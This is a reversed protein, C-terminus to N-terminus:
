RYGQKRLTADLDAKTRQITDRINQSPPQPPYIYGFPLKEEVYGADVSAGARPADHALTRLARKPPINTIPEGTPDAVVKENKAKLSLPSNSADGAEFEGKDKEKPARLTAQNGPKHSNFPVNPTGNIHTLRVRETRPAYGKDDDPTGKQASIPVGSTGKKQARFPVRPTGKTHPQDHSDSSQKGPVILGPIRALRDTHVQYVVGHGRGYRGDSYEVRSIWGERELQARLTVASARRIKAIEAIEDVGCVANSGDHKRSSYLGIIALVRNLYVDMGPTSTVAAAVIYSMDRQKNM